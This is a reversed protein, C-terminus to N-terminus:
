VDCTRDQPSRSAGGAVHGGAVVSLGDSRSLFGIFLGITRDLSLKNVTSSSCPQSQIDCRWALGHFVASVVAPVIGLLM